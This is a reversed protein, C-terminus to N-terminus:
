IELVTKLHDLRTQYTKHVGSMHMFVTATMNINCALKQEYNRKSHRIENTAANPAEKFNTNKMM